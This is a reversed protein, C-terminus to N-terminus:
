HKVFKRVISQEEGEIKLFYIGDSLDAVDITNNKPVFSKISKGTIDVISIRDIHLDTDITLQTSTPNPYIELDGNAEVDNVGTIVPTGVVNITFGGTKFVVGNAGISDCYQDVCGAGDDVTLCLYFPGATAYTHSPNQLNSTNGDGFDWLYTLSSGTSSNVVTVDNIGTDPYMVFGAHCQLPTPDGTVNITDLYYDFCSGPTNTDNVTLVVIFIGNTSFNHSPNTASSTTGDGFAWHSQNFTGTSLNSFSYVSNIINSDNFNANVDCPISSVIVPLSIHSVCGNAGTVTLKVLYQNNVSYTHSPHQQSSTNGDGFEWFWSSIGSNNSYSSDTFSVLGSDVQLDYFYSNLQCDSDIKAVFLNDDGLNPFDFNESFYVFGGINGAIYCSGSSDIALNNFTNQGSTQGINKVWEENGFANYHAIKTDLGIRDIVYSNGANDVALDGGGYSGDGSGALIQTWDITGLSNTKILFNEYGGGNSLMFTDMQISSSFLGFVYSNGSPDVDIAKDLLTFNGEIRKLWQFNGNPDFKAYFVDSDGWGGVTTLNVTDVSMDQYFRGLIYSNGLSDIGMDKLIVEAASNFSKAWVYNGFMDIKALFSNNIGSSTLTDTGFIEVGSFTGTVLVDQTVEDIAISTIRPDGDAIYVTFIWNGNSDYKRLFNERWNAGLELYGSVYCNGLKDVEIVDGRSSWGAGGGLEKAWVMDGLIDYKAFYIKTAHPYANTLSGLITGGAYDGIIYSNGNEDVSIDRGTLEVVPGSTSVWQIQQGIVQSM